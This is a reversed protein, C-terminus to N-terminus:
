VLGKAQPFQETRLCTSIHVYLEPNSFYWSNGSECQHWANELHLLIKKLNRCSYDIRILFFGNKVGWLSKEIDRDQQKKFEALTNRFSTEKFHQQGDFELIYRIKNKVFVFDFYRRPLSSFVKEREFPIQLHNFAEVCLREGTTAHCKWCGTSNHIHYKIQILFFEQCSNCKVNVVSEANKIDTELIHSYDYLTAGHVAQARTVFSSFTYPLQHTCKPCGHMQSLQLHSKLLPAWEHNCVRCRLPIPLRGALKMQPSIRSYDITPHFQLGAEIVRDYTWPTGQFCSPCGSRRLHDNVLPFWHWECDACELEIRSRGTTLDSWQVHSYIVRDHHIAVARKLFMDKTIREVGACSPCGSVKGRRQRLHDSASIEWPVTARYCNNQRCLLKVRSKARVVTGQSVLSYDIKGEHLKEAEELFSATDFKRRPRIRRYGCKQCGSGSQIHNRVSTNWTYDCSNCRITITSQSSSIHESELCPYAYKAALTPVHELFRDKTWLRAPKRAVKVRM